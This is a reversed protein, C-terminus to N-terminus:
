GTHVDLFAIEKTEDTGIGIKACGAIICQM